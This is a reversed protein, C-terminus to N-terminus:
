LWPSWGHYIAALHEESRADLILQKVQGEVGLHESKHRGELKDKVQKRVMKADATKEEEELVSGMISSNMESEVGQGVRDRRNEAAKKATSMKWSMLPDHLLVDVIALLDEKNDRLVRLTEECCRTFVGETGAVGFGDVVERTLRFPVLEPTALLRGQDFVIGLDINLLESSAEILLTNSTHRDGLGVIFGAMSISAVSRTYALRRQFWAPASWSQELFYHHFVPETNKMVDRFAELRKKMNNKHDWQSIMQIIASNTYKEWTSGERFRDRLTKRGKQKGSDGLISRLSIADVFELVGALPHLPIVKYIRVNLQRRCCAADQRLLMGMVQFLQSTVADCRQDDGGKVIQKHKTGDTGNCTILKPKTIGGPFRWENDFGAVKSGMQSTPVPVLSVEERWKIRQMKAKVPGSTAVGIDFDALEIYADVLAETQRLVVERREREARGDPTTLDLGQTVMSGLLQTAADIRDQNVKYSVGAVGETSSQRCRTENKAAFLPLLTDDPRAELLRSLFCRLARQFEPNSKSDSDLRSVIQPVLIAFNHTLSKMQDLRECLRKNVKDVTSNEFWIQLIRFVARKQTGRIQLHAFYNDMAGLMFAQRHEEHEQLSKLEERHRLLQYHLNKKDNKADGTLNKARELPKYALEMEQIRSTIFVEKRKVADRDEEDQCYMGDLFAALKFFANTCSMQTDKRLNLGWEMKQKIEAWRETRSVSLWEANVKLVKALLKRDKESKDGENLFEELDCLIRMAQDKRRDEWLVKAETLWWEDPLRIRGAESLRHQLKLMACRAYPISGHKLAYKATLCLHKQVCSSKVIGLLVGHLAISPEQLLFRNQMAKYRKAWQEVLDSIRDQRGSQKSLVTAVDTVDQCSQLRVLVPHSKKISQLEHEAIEKLAVLRAGEVSIKVEDLEGKQQVM